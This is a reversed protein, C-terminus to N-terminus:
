RRKRAKGEAGSQAAVGRPTTKSARSSGGAGQSRSASKAAKAARSRTKVARDAELVQALEEVATAPKEQV